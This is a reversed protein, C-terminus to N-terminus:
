GRHECSDAGPAKPFECFLFRRPSSTNLRPSPRTLGTRAHSQDGAAQSRQDRAVSILARHPVFVFVAETHRNRDRPTPESRGGPGKLLAGSASRSKTPRPNQETASILILNSISSM